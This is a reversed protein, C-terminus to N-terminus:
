VGDRWRELAAIRAELSAVRDVPAPTVARKPKGSGNSSSVRAPAAPTASPVTPGTVRKMVGRASLRLFARGIPGLWILRFLREGIPMRFPSRAFLLLSVGIWVFLPRYRTALVLTALFTKDPLEVLFITGFTVVVAVPDM